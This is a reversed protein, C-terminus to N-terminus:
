LSKKMDDILKVCIPCELKSGMKLKQNKIVVTDCDETHGCDYTIQSHQKDITRIRKIMRITDGAPLDDEKILSGITILEQFSKAFELSLGRDDKFGAYALKGCADRVAPIIKRFTTTLKLISRHAGIAYDKWEMEQQYQLWLAKLAHEKNGDNEEIFKDLGPTPIEMEIVQGKIEEVM